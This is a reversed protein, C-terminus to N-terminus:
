FNKLNMCLLIGYLNLLMGFLYESAILTNVFTKFGAKEYRLSIPYRDTTYTSSEYRCPSVNSYHKCFMVSDTLNNCDRPNVIWGSVDTSFGVCFNVNKPNTKFELVIVRVRVSALFSFIILYPSPIM